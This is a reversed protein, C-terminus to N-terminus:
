KVQGGIIPGVKLNSKQCFVRYASKNLVMCNDRAKFNLVELKIHKRGIIVIIYVRLSV